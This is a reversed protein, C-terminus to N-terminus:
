ESGLAKLSKRYFADEDELGQKECFSALKRYRGVPDAGTIWWLKAVCEPCCAIPRRDSPGPKGLKRHLPRVREMAAEIAELRPDAESTSCGAVVLLLVAFAPLSDM